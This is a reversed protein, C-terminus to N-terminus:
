QDNKADLTFIYNEINTYGNGSIKSADEPNNKDLGYKDEFVDPMGDNDSDLEKEAIKIEGPGGLPFQDKNRENQIISGHKGLSTLEGILYNDVQDRVPLSAGVYKVVM